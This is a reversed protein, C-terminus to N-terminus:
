RRLALDVAQECLEPLTKHVSAGPSETMIYYTLSRSEPFERHAGFCLRLSSDASYKGLWLGVELRTTAGFVKNRSKASEPRPALWFLICGTRASRELYHREWDLKSKFRGEEGQLLHPEFQKPLSKRESPCVVVLDQSQDLIHHIAEQHWNGASRIPGALFISPRDLDEAHRM